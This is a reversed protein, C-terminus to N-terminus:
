WGGWGGRIMQLIVGGGSVGVVGKKLHTHPPPLGCEQLRFQVEIKWLYPELNM